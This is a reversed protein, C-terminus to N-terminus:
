NSVSLSCDIHQVRRLLVNIPFGFRQSGHCSIDIWTTPYSITSAAFPSRSSDPPIALVVGAGARLVLNSIESGLVEDIKRELWERTRGLPYQSIAKVGNYSNV